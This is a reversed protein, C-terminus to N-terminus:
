AKASTEEPKADEPGPEPKMMACCREMMSACGFDGEGESMCKGMDRMMGFIGGFGSKKHETKDSM